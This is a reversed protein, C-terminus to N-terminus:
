RDSAKKLEMRLRSITEYAKRGDDKREWMIKLEKKLETIENELRFCRNSMVQLNHKLTEIYEKLLKLGVLKIGDM